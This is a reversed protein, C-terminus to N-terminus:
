VPAKPRVVLGGNGDGTVDLNTGSILHLVADRASMKGHLPRSQIGDVVKPPFLISQGSQVAVLKLAESLPQDRLEFQRDQAQAIGASLAWIAAGCVLQVRATRSITM